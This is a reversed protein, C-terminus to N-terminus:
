PLKKGSKPFMEWVYFAAAIIVSYFARPVTKLVLDPLVISFHHTNKIILILSFLSDHILFMVFLIITKVFADTRMTKENFLGICAGMVTKTLANQGLLSPSYLDQALGLFFGVFLGPMSGYRISFFFLLIMLLDPKVGWIAM